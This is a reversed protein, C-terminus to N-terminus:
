LKSLGETLEISTGWPDTVYANTIGIPLVKYPSDLKIGRAELNKCFAELNKIEFGIHDLARGKTPKLPGHAAAFNMNVGPLDAAEYPAGETKHRKGPLAGFFKQYWEKAEVVKGEPAYIHIHHLMIPATMKPPPVYAGEDPTFKVNVSQDEMFEIREGEPAWVNGVKGTRSGSLQVKYGADFMKAMLERVNPVRFGVHNVVSGESNGSPEGQTLLVTLGPFRLVERTGLMVPTAGLAIWFKRNGDMDRVFYHLHGMSVGAANPALLQARAAGIPSLVACMLVLMLKRM